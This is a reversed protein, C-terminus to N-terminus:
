QILITIIFSPFNIPSTTNSVKQPNPITHLTNEDKKEQGSLILAVIKEFYSMEKIHRPRDEM